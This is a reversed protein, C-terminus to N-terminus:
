SRIGRPIKFPHLWSVSLVFYSFYHVVQVQILYLGTLIEKGVSVSHCVYRRRRDREVEHRRRGRWEGRRRM